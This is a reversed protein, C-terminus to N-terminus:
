SKKLSRSSDKRLLELQKGFKKAYAKRSMSFISNFKNDAVLDSGILKLIEHREKIEELSLSLISSSDPVINLTGYKALYSFVEQLYLPSKVIILPKLFEDGYNNKIYTITKELEYSPKLFVTGKIKIGNKQCLDIIKEVEEAPMNFMSNAVKVNKRKCINIIKEIELSSKNFISGFPKIDNDLCVKIIQELEFTTRKFVSGTIKIDYKQCLEIIKRVEESTRKFM